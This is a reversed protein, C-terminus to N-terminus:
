VISHNSSSSFFLFSFSVKPPEQRGELTKLSAIPHSSADMRPNFQVKGMSRSRNKPALQQSGFVKRVSVFSHRPKQQQKTPQNTQQNTQVNSSSLSFFREELCFGNDVLFPVRMSPSLESFRKYTNDLSHDDKFLDIKHLEFPLGNLVCFLWTALSYPCLPSYYLHVPSSVPKDDGYVTMRELFDTVTDLSRAEPSLAIINDIVSNKRLEFIEDFFDIAAFDVNEPLFPKMNCDLFDAFPTQGEGCEPDQICGQLFGELHLFKEELFANMQLMSSENFLTKNSINQM